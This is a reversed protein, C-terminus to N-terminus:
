QHWGAIAVGLISIGIGVAQMTTIKEGAYALFVVYTIAYLVDYLVSAYVLSIDKNKAIWGWALGSLISTSVAWYWAISGANIAKSIIAGATASGVVLFILKSWFLINM